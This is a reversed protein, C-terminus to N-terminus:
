AALRVQSAQNMQTSSSIRLLKSILSLKFEAKPMLILNITLSMWLSISSLTTTTSSAKILLSTKSLESSTM